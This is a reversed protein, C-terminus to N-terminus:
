YDSFLDKSEECERFCYIFNHVNKKLNIFNKQEYKEISSYDETQQMFDHVKKPENQFQIKLRAIEENKYQFLENKEISIMREQLNYNNLDNN